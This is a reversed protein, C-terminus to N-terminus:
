RALVPRINHHGFRSMVMEAKIDGVEGTAIRLGMNLTAFRPSQPMRVNSAAFIDLARLIRMIPEQTVLSYSAVDSVHAFLRELVRIREQGLANIGGSVEKMERTDLTAATRLFLLISALRRSWVRVVSQAFCPASSVSPVAPTPHFSSSAVSVRASSQSVHNEYVREAANMHVIPRSICHYFYKAASVVHERFRVVAIRTVLSSGGNVLITKTAGLITATKLLRLSM